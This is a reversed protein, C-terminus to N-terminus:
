LEQMEEAVPQFDSTREDLDNVKCHLTVTHGLQVTVNTSNAYNEFSPLPPTPTDDEEDPGAEEMGSDEYASTYPTTLEKWFNHAAFPSFPDTINPTKM